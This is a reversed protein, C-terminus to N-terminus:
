REPPREELIGHRRAVEELERRVARVQEVDELEADGFAALLEELEEYAVLLESRPIEGDQTPEERGELNPFHEPEHAAQRLCAAHCTFVAYGGGQIRVSLECFSSASEDLEEGCFLCLYGIEFDGTARAEETPHFEEGM